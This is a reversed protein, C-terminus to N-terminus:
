SEPLVLLPMSTLGLEEETFGKLFMHEMFSRDRRIMMLIGVDETDVLYENIAVLPFYSERIIIEGLNNELYKLVFPDVLVDKKNKSIHLIDIKTKLETALALSMNLVETRDVQGSDLTL